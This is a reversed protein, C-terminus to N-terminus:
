RTTFEASISIVFIYNHLTERDVWKKVINKMEIIEQEM